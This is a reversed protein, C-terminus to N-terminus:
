DLTPARSDWAGQMERRSATAQLFQQRDAPDAFSAAQAMLGARAAALTAAARADQQLALVRTCAIAAEAEDTQWGGRGAVAAQVAEVGALAAQLAHPPQPRAQPQAPDIPLDSM